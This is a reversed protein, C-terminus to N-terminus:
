KGREKYRDLHQSFKTQDRKRMTKRDSESDRSHKRKIEKDKCTMLLSLIAIESPQQTTENCFIIIFGHSM